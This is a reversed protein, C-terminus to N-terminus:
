TSHGCQGSHFVNFVANSFALYIAVLQILKLVMGSHYAKQTEEMLFTKIAMILWMIEENM